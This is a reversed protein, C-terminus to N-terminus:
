NEMWLINSKFIPSISTEKVLEERIITIISTSRFIKKIKAVLFFDKTGSLNCDKASIDYSIINLVVLSLRPLLPAFNKGNTYEKNINIKNHLRGGLLM